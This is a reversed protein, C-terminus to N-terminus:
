QMKAYGKNGSFGEQQLTKMMNLRVIFHYKPLSFGNWFVM